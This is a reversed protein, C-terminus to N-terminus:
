FASDLNRSLLWATDIGLTRANIGTVADALLPITGQVDFLASLIMAM